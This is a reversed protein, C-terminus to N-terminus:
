IPGMYIHGICDSRVYDHGIYNRQHTQTYEHNSGTSCTATISYASSWAGNTWAKWGTAQDPCGATTDSDVGGVTTTYDDGIMWGNSTLHLYENNRNKYVPKGNRLVGAVVTFTGMRTSQVAEAGQVIMNGCCGAWIHYRVLYSIKGM